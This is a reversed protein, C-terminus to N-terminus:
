SKLIQAIVAKLDADSITDPGNAPMPIRGWNGQGGARVKAALTDTVNQGKYKVAIAHFAPGVVKYTPAHCGTCGAKEMIAQPDAALAAHTATALLAAVAVTWVNKMEHEM